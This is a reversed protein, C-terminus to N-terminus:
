IEDGEVEFGEETGGMQRNLMRVMAFLEADDMQTQKEPHFISDYSPRQGKCWVFSATLNALVYIQMNREEAERRRRRLAARQAWLLEAPTM